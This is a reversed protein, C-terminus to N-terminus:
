DFDGRSGSLCVHGSHPDRRADGPRAPGGDFGKRMDPGTALWVRVGTPVPIMMGLSGSCQWSPPWILSGCDAGTRRGMRGRGGGRSEEPLRRRSPLLCCWRSLPQRPHPNPPSGRRGCNVGGGSCFARLLGTGARWPRSRTRPGSRKMLLPASRGFPGPDARAPWWRTHSPRRDLCLCSVPGEM